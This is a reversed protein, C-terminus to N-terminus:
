WKAEKSTHFGFSFGVNLSDSRGQTLLILFDNRGMTGTYVCCFVPNAKLWVREVFMQQIGARHLLFGKDELLPAHLGTRQFVWQQSPSLCTFQDNACFTALAVLLGSSLTNEPPTAPIVFPEVWTSSSSQIKFLSYSDVPSSSSFSTPVTRASTHLYALVLCMGGDTLHGTALDGRSRIRHCCRADQLGLPAM